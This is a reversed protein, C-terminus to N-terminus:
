KGTSSIVLNETNTITQSEKYDKDLWMWALEDSLHERESPTLHDIKMVIEELIKNDTRCKHLQSQRQWFELITTTM